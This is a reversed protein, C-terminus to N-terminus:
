LTGDELLEKLAKLHYVIWSEGLAEEGKGKALAEAKHKKDVAQALEIMETIMNTAIKIKEKDDM